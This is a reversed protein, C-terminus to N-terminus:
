SVDYKESQIISHVNLTQYYIEARYYMFIYYTHLSLIWGQTTMRSRRKLKRGEPDKLMSRMRKMPVLIM